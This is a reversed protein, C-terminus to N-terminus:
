SRRRRSGDSPFLLSASTSTAAPHANRTSMSSAVYDRGDAPHLRSERLFEARPGGDFGDRFMLGHVNSRQGSIVRGLRLGPLGSGGARDLVLRNLLRGAEM